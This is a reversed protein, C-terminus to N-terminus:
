KAEMPTLTISKLGIVKWKPEAKPKVSVTCAGPKDLTLTGLIETAFTAWTGTTRSTGTLKRGGAEVTYQSGQAGDQCSYAVEVTFTGPKAVKVDWSVFDAPNAWYGINDKGGGVEYIPSDGHITADRARLIIRGDSRQAITADAVVPVAKLDDGTIRLVFAHECPKTAPVTVVLGGTAEASGEDPGKSAASRDDATQAWAVKGDFGLLRVDTVKGAAAPLVRVVLKGDEPWGLAIAYLTKGKTTFRIDAATYGRVSDEGFHGGRTRVPGEGFVQWPRTGFIAEANVDMWVAMQELFKVEEDDISGDGRVPINLLLNGNKSVIDALMAIVTAVSKYRIGRRYHWDGICTDTQWPLAELKNALGRELDLVIAQRCGPPPAKINLVAQLDGDHWQRNANYFHAAIRKGAVGLPLDGDDFYLLDPRYKDLLDKTRLFWKLVYAKYAEPTRAAGHPGYLDAPDYGDWWLGKGDAKTLVGDYPLGKLPGDKDGGHAVEFWDWARASHVTVGFRLGYRRATAAFIGTLDKKPGINVSNWPQFKSDWADFNCHHNVMFTFYKAGARQYLKMMRDPDWKDGKWLNCIDKYGFKSPHGFQAVHYLYHPSGQMYMNRAYWDGQEPVCQPSWCAWIGFKADRFWEPCQYAKLSDWNPQFPGDAVLMDAAEEAPVPPAATASALSLVALVALPAWMRMTVKRTM